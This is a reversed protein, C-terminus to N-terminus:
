CRTHIPSSVREACLWRAPPECCARWGHGRIRMWAAMPLIMWVAMEVLRVAPRDPLDLLLRSAAGLAVMGVMMAAVMELYHRAFRRTAGSV